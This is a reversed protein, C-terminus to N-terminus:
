WVCAWDSVFWLTPLDLCVLARLVSLPAVTYSFVAAGPNGLWSNDLALVPWFGWPLFPAPLAVPMYDLVEAHLLATDFCAAAFRAEAPATGFHAVAFRAEAPATDYCAM